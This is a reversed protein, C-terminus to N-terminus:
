PIGWIFSCNQLILRWTGNFKRYASYANIKMIIELNSMGKTNCISFYLYIYYLVTM